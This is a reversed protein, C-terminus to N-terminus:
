SIVETSVVRGEELAKQKAEEEHKKAQEALWGLWALIFYDHLEPSRPKNRAEAHAEDIIRKIKRNIYLTALFM